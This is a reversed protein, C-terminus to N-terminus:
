KGSAITFRPLFWNPVSTKRVSRVGDAERDLLKWRFKKESGM